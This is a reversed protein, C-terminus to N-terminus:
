RVYRECCLAVTRIFVLCLHAARQGELCGSNKTLAVRVESSIDHFM